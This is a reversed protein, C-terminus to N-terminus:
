AETEVVILRKLFWWGRYDVILRKGKLEDRVYFVLGDKEIM